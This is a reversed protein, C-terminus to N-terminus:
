RRSEQMTFNEDKSNRAVTGKSKRGVESYKNYPEDSYAMLYQLEKLKITSDRRNEGRINENM